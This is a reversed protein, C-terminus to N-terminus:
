KVTNYDEVLMIDDIYFPVNSYSNDKIDLYMYFGTLVTEETIGTKDANRIYNFYYKIINYCIVSTKEVRYLAM